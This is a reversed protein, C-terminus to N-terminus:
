LYVSSEIGGMGECEGGDRSSTPLFHRHNSVAARGITLIFLESVGRRGRHCITLASRGQTCACTNHHPSPRPPASVRELHIITTHIGNNNETDVSHSMVVRKLQIFQAMTTIYWLMIVPFYVGESNFLSLDEGFSM